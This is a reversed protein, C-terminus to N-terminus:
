LEIVEYVGFLFATSHSFFDKKTFSYFHCHTYLSGETTEIFIMPGSRYHKGARADYLSGVKLQNLNRIIKDNM